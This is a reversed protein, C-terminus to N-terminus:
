RQWQRQSLSLSLSLSIVAISEKKVLAESQDIDIRSRSLPFGHQSRNRRRSLRFNIKRRSLSLDSVSLPMSCEIRRWSLKLIIKRGQSLYLISPCLYLFLITSCRIGEEHSISLSRSLSLIFLWSRRIRTTSNATRNQSLIGQEQPMDNHSGGVWSNLKRSSWGATLINM